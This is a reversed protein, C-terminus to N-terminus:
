TNGSGEAPPAAAPQPPGGSALRSRTGCRPLLITATIGQDGVSGFLDGLEAALVLDLAEVQETGGGSAVSGM